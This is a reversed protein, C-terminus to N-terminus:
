DSEMNGNHVLNKQHVGNHNFLQSKWTNREDANLKNLGKSINWFIYEGEQWYNLKVKM